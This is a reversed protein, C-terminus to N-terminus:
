RAIPPTVVASADSRPGRVAPAPMAVANAPDIGTLRAGGQLDALDIDPADLTAIRVPVGAIRAIRDRLADGPEAAADAQGVM